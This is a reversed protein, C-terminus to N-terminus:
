SGVWNVSALQCGLKRNWCSARCLPATKFCLWPNIVSATFEGRDWQWLGGSEKGPQGNHLLGTAKRFRGWSEEALRFSSAGFGASLLFPLTSMRHTDSSLWERWCEHEAEFEACEHDDILCDCCIYESIINSYVFNNLIRTEKHM